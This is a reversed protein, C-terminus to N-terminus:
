SQICTSSATFSTHGPANLTLVASGPFGASTKKASALPTVPDATNGIFLLPFSTNGSVPGLFRDERHVKWGACTARVWIMADAFSSISSLETWYEQLETVSDTIEVGDGCSVAVLVELTNLYTSTSNSSGCEFPASDLQMQYISSGNGAALQALGQALTTFSAYPAYEPMM